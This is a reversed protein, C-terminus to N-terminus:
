RPRLRSRSCKMRTIWPTQACPASQRHASSGSRGGRAAAPGDPTCRGRGCGNAQWAASSASRSAPDGGPDALVAAPSATRLATWSSSVRCSGDAPPPGSAEGSSTRGSAGPCRSDRPSRAGRRSRNRGPAAPHRQRAPPHGHEGEAGGGRERQETIGPQASGGPRRVLGRDGAPRQGVQGRHGTERGAQGRAAPHQGYELGVTVGIRRPPARHEATGVRLAGTVQGRGHGRGAPGGGPVARSRQEAAGQVGQGVGGRPGPQGGGRQQGRARGCGPGGERQGFPEHQGQGRGIGADVHHRRLVLGFRGRQGRVEVGPAVARDDRRTRHAGAEPEGLGGGGLGIGPPDLERQLGGVIRAQHDGRGVDPGALPGPEGGATVRHLLQQGAQAGGGPEEALEVVRQALRSGGQHLHVRRAREPEELLGPRQQGAGPEAHQQRVPHALGPEPQLQGRPGPGRGARRGGPRGHGPEAQTVQHVEPVVHCHAVLREIRVLQGLQGPQLDRQDPQAALPDLQVVRVQLRRQLEELAVLGPRHGRRVRQRGPHAQSRSQIARSRASGSPGALLDRQDPHVGVAPQAVQQGALGVM